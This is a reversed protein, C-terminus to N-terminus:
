NVQIPMVILSPNTFIHSNIKLIFVYDQFVLCNIQNNHTGMYKKRLGGQIPNLVFLCFGQMCSVSFKKVHTSLLVSIPIPETSLLGEM